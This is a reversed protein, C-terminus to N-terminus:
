AGTEGSLIFDGATGCRVRVCAYQGATKTHGNVNHIPLSSVFEVQGTNKQIVECWFGSDNCSPHITVTVGLADGMHYTGGQHWPMITFTDVIFPVDQGKTSNEPFVSDFEPAIALQIFPNGEEYIVPISGSELVIRLGPEAFAMGVFQRVPITADATAPYTLTKGELGNIVVKAVANAEADTMTYDDFNMDIVYVGRVGLFLAEISADNDTLHAAQADSQGQLKYIADSLLDGYAVPEDVPTGIPLQSNFGDGTPGPPGQRGESFLMIREDQVILVSNDDAM